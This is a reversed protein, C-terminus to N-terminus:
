VCYSESVTDVFLQLVLVAIHSLHEFM